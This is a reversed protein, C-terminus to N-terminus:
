AAAMETKLEEEIFEPLLKPYTQYLRASLLEEVLHGIWTQCEFTTEGDFHQRGEENLIKYRPHEANKQMRRDFDNLDVEAPTVPKDDITYDDIYHFVLCALDEDTLAVQNLLRETEALSGHGNANAIRIVIASFGAHDMIRKAEETAKEFAQWTYGEETVIRKEEKKFFDHLTAALMLDHTLQDSFHLLRGFISARAACLLCHRTVNGWDPKGDKEVWLGSDRHLILADKMQLALQLYYNNNATFIKGIIEVIESDKITSRM